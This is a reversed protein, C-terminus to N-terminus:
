GARCRNVLSSLNEVTKRLADLQSRASELENEIQVRRLMAGVYGATQSREFRGTEMLRDELVEASLGLNEKVIQYALQEKNPEAGPEVYYRHM